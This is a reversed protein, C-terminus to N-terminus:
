VDRALRVGYDSYRLHPPLSSRHGVPSWPDAHRWAGGRSARRTGTAPGRPDREPSHAYYADDFWDACWEHCVGSLDTLGLPNVPTAGVEPLRGFRAAPKDDGWPYRAGDLGGRAAKEWEAETPLRAGAWAAVAVAEPWSLGVVPQRPHSFGPKGWFAPPPAGTSELYAAYDANTLPRLAILFADLWVVHVPRESPHGDDSGMAFAGAAVHVFDM